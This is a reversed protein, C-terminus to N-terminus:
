RERTGSKETQKKMTEGSNPYLRSLVDAPRSCWDDVTDKEKEEEVKKEKEEDEQIREEVM